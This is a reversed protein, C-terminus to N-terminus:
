MLEKDTDMEKSRIRIFFLIQELTPRQLPCAVTGARVLAVVSPNGRCFFASLLILGSFYGGRVSRGLLVGEQHGGEHLLMITYKKEPFGLCTLILLANDDV